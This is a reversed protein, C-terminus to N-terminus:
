PPISQIVGFLQLVKQPSTKTRSYVISLIFTVSNIVVFQILFILNVTCLIDCEDLLIFNMIFLYYILFYIFLYMIYM